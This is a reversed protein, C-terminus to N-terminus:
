SAFILVLIRPCFNVLITMHVPIDPTRSFTRRGFLFPHMVIQRSIYSLPPPISFPNGGGGWDEGNELGELKRVGVAIWEGM